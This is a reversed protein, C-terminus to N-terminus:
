NIYKRANYAVRAFKIQNCILNKLSRCISNTDLTTCVTQTTMIVFSVDAQHPHILVRKINVLVTELINSVTEMTVTNM